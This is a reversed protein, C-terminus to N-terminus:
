KPVQMSWCHLGGGKHNTEATNIQYINRDPFFRRLIQVAKEDKAKSIESKGETWYKAEIVGTQPEWEAPLYFENKNEQNCSFLIALALLPLLPHHIKM